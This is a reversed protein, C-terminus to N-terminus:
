YYLPLQACNLRHHAKQFVETTLFLYYYLNPKRTLVRSNLLDPLSFDFENFCEADFCDRFLLATEASKIKRLKLESQHSSELSFILDAPKPSFFGWIM